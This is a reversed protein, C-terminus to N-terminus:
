PSGELCPQVGNDLLPLKHSSLFEPIDNHATASQIFRAKGDESKELLDTCTQSLTQRETTFNQSCLDDSYTFRGQIERAGILTDQPQGNDFSSLYDFLAKAGGQKATKVCAWDKVLGRMIVPKIASRIDTEFMEKSVNEAIPIDSAPVM